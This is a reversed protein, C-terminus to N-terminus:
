WPRLGQVRYDDHSVTISQAIISFSEGPTRIHAAEDVAVGGLENTKEGAEIADKNLARQRPKAIGLSHRPKEAHSIDPVDVVGPEGLGETVLNSQVSLAKGSLSAAFDFEHPLRTEALFRPNGLNQRSTTMVWAEHM